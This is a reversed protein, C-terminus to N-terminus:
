ENLKKITFSYHWPNVCRLNGCTDDTTITYMHCNMYLSGSKCPCLWKPKPPNKWTEVIEKIEPHIPIDGYIVKYIFKRAPMKMYKKKNKRKGTYQQFVPVEENANYLGNWDYCRDNYFGIKNNENSRMYPINSDVFERETDKEDCDRLKKRIKETPKTTNRSFLEIFMNDPTLNLRKTMLFSFIYM